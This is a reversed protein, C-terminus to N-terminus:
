IIYLQTIKWKVCADGLFISVSATVGINEIFFFVRLCEAFGIPFCKCVFFNLIKSYFLYFMLYFIDLLVDKSRIAAETSIM